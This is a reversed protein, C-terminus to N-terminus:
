AERSIETENEEGQPEAASGNTAPPAIGVGFRLGVVGFRNGKEVSLRTEAPLCRRKM